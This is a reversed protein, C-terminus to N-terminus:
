NQYPVVLEQKKPTKERLLLPKHRNIYLYWMGGDGWRM